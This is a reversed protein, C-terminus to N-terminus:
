GSVLLREFNPAEFDIFVQSCAFRERPDLHGADAAGVNVKPFAFQWNREGDDESVLARAADCFEAGAEVPIPGALSEGDSVAHDPGAADDASFAVVAADFLSGSTTQLAFSVADGVVAILSRVQAAAIAFPNEQACASGDEFERVRNGEFGDDTGAAGEVSGEVADFSDLDPHAVGDNNLTGSWDSEGRKRDCDFGTGALGDDDSAGFVAELHREFETGIGDDTEVYVFSWLGAADGDTCGYALKTGVDDEFAYTMRRCNWLAELEAAIAALVEDKALIGIGAVDFEVRMDDGFLLEGYHSAPGEFRTM